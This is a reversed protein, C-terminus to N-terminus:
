RAVKPDAGLWRAAEGLYFEVQALDAEMGWNTRGDKEFKMGHAIRRTEIAALLIEIRAQRAAYLPAPTVTTDANLRKLIKKGIRTTM